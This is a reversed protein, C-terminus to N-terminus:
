FGHSDDTGKGNEGALPEGAFAAALRACAEVDAPAVASMMSHAWRCPISVGGTLVGGRSVHISGADTGGARLVDMQFPIGEREAVARLRSVVERSCIVSRDKVKIAAGGRTKSSGVKEDAPTVDMVLSYDPEIAWAATKAGRMGVEEQVTFAFYLDNPSEKIQEMAMLMALCSIRNDLYPSFLLDGNQFPPADYVATDGISVLKEAEARDKAGIEIFLDALSADKLSVDEDIAVVGRVGSRFRVPVHLCSEVELGGLKGFRLTGNDEIHTVIFGISDMHAAFLLKPGRGRRHVILNGMTDRWIEDGLPEALKWLMRAIEDEDGSPGHCANCAQLTKLLEM